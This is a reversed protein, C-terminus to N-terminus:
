GIVWTGSLLTVTGVPHESQHYLLLTGNRQLSLETGPRPRAGAIAAYWRHPLAPRFGAPVVGVPGGNPAPTGTRMVSGRFHVTSGIRRVAPPEGNAVDWGAVLTLPTWGTDEYVTHWVGDGVYVELRHTQEQHVYMGVHPSAPRTGDNLVRVVGGAAATYSREDSIDAATIVTANAPVSVRALRIHDGTVEPLVPSPDPTGPVLEVSMGTTGDGYQTDRQRVVILDLRPNSTAPATGLVDVTKARDMTVLYPGAATTRTGQIVAQFPNVTVKGSVTPTPLVRGPEGPAPKVGSRAQVPGAGPAAFVGTALRADEADVVGGSIWGSDREPTPTTM